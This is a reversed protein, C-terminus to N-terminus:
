RRQWEQGVAFDTRKTGTYGNRPKQSRLALAGAIKLRPKQRPERLKM